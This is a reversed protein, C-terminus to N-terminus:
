KTLVIKGRKEGGANSIIYLYVGSSLENGSDNKVDWVAQGDGDNELITRVREGSLTYIEIACTSSLDTFTIQTDGESPKYLNPFPKDPDSVSTSCGAVLLLCCFLIILKNM